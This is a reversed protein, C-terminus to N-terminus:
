SGDPVGMARDLARACHILTTDFVPVTVNEQNLLLGVETCGLILCDAGRAVLREAIRTYAARSAATVIDKCLKEYIIRHTEERDSAEPVI